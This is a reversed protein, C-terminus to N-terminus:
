WAMGGDIKLDQGSIYSSKESILFIVLKAVESPTGIRKLFLRSVLEAKKELNINLNVMNSEILGPSVSNVRIGKSGLERALVRSAQTLAAKSAGYLLRGGDPNSGSTSSLFVISSLGKNIYYRVFERTAKSVNIFNVKMINEFESDTTFLGFNSSMVGSSFVIGDIKKVSAILVNIQKKLETDNSLDLEFWQVRPNPSTERITKKSTAIVNYGDTVLETVIANGIEGSAGVVLINPM